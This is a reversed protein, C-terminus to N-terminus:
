NRSKKQFCVNKLYGVFTGRTTSLYLLSFYTTMTLATIATTANSGTDDNDKDDGTTLVARMMKTTTTAANGDDGDNNNNKVVSPSPHYQISEKGDALLDPSWILEFDFDFQLTLSQSARKNPTSPILPFFNM